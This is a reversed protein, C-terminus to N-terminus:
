FERLNELFREERKNQILQLHEEIRRLRADIIKLDRTLEAMACWLQAFRPNDSIKFAEVHMRSRDMIEDLHPRIKAHVKDRWKKTGMLQPIM